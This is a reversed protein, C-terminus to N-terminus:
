GMKRYRLLSPGYVVAYSAFSLCWAAGSLSYLQMNFEPVIGAVVRAIVSVLITLYIIVTGAGATLEQGTHGLTARTMVALTMTAIAGAMWLHQAATAPIVDPFFISLGMALAGLPVFAYGVHLIWVLPERGTLYGCWRWLRYTHVGGTILLAATTVLSDPQVVWMLVTFLCVLMSVKDYTGIAAPRAEMKSRAMWNRTFSPVIRGGIVVIMMIAAGVGIRLGYGGAAYEGSSAEIHFILNGFMLMVLMGLVILNRWNKGKIIEQAIALALAAPAMLDALAVIEPSWWASTLVAFRGIIWCLFLVGLPWGVIPLRGTWNPVATLLFGAVIAQLYGYLFEHAHWSVPDWAIPLSIDGMLLPIWLLASIFAWLAGGLFFPRFGYSLLAPGTWQRMLSATSSM